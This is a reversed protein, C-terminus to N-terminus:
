YLKSRKVLWPTLVDSFPKDIDVEVLEIKYQLCKKRLMDFKQRISNLYFERYESPNLKLTEGSEMDIIKYPRNELEFLQETKNHTVHFFIVEHKNYKLHELSEFLENDASQTFMDTFIAVLSRKNIMEAIRHIITATATGRKQDTSYRSRLINDLTSFILKQHSGSLRSPLHLDINDSFTTLGVSDRQRGLMHTIAAACLASYGAKNIINDVPYLMSSSTDVVLQCRLNTEAEYNKVFLKDTRGFLKWDINRASEGNNYVRHEAFEVSFGHYPSKHIGSIFGEVIQRAFFDISNLYPLAEIQQATTLFPTNM